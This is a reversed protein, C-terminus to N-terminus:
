RRVTVPAKSSNVTFMLTTGGRFLSATTSGDAPTGSDTSVQWIKEGASVSYVHLTMSASAQRNTSPLCILIIGAGQPIVGDPLTVPAALSAQFTGQAKARLLDVDTRLTVRLRTTVPIPAGDAPVITPNAAAPKAAPASAANQAGPPVTMGPLIAEDPPTGDALNHIMSPVMVQIDAVTAGCRSQAVRGRVELRQGVFGNVDANSFYLPSLCAVFAGNPSETFYLRAPKRGDPSLEVRSVTGRVYLLERSTLWQPTFESLDRIRGINRTHEATYDIRRQREEFATRAADARVLPDAALAAAAKRKESEDYAKALEVLFAARLKREAETLPSRSKAGDSSVDEGAATGETVKVDGTASNASVNMYHEGGYCDFTVAGMPNRGTFCKSAGPRFELVLSLSHFGGTGVPAGGGLQFEACNGAAPFTQDKTGWLTRDPHVCVSRGSLAQLATRETAGEMTATVLDRYSTKGFDPVSSVRGSVFEGRSNKFGFGLFVRQRLGRGEYTFECAKPAISTGEVEWHPTFLESTMAVAVVEVTVQGKNCVTLFAKGDIQAHLSQPIALVIFLFLWMSPMAYIRRM